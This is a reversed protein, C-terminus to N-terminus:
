VDDVLVVRNVFSVSVESKEESTGPRGFGQNAFFEAVKLATETNPVEVFDIHRCGCKQCAREVRVRRSATMGEDLMTLLKEYRAELDDKLRDRVPKAM